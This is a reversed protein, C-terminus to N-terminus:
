NAEALTTTGGDVAEYQNNVRQVWVRAGSRSAYRVAFGVADAPTSFSMQWNGPHRAIFCCGDAQPALLLDGDRPASDDAPVLHLPADFLANRMPVSHCELEARGM